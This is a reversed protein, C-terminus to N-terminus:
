LKHKKMEAEEQDDDVEAEVNKDLKQKKLIKSELEEGARKSSGETRTESGKVLETDMDVFTNYKKKEEAQLRAALEYDADMMAQVNEWKAINADEERQRELKEEEELEADLQAATTIPDTTSVGKEAMDVEKEAMDQENDLVGTDFMLNDGYRGQTEDVLTVKADQDIENIKRGQKSADEQDGLGKDEYSFVQASRGITFLRKMGPTKSKKKREIKKVRKKLCAIEKAQATKTTELDLVRQSLSTCLEILENLKLRDESSLLPDNSHTPVSAVNETDGTVLETPGSLQSDETDKRQKRRSQKKSIETIIVKKKDVLAQIQVEGNVIKVKRTAQGYCNSAAIYEAETTSNAVVTQKKCQWSILRCGLFQCGGTTSKRDLSAGVYDSDTYAVLNFPSDKLYWLGLKPQGKLYRFIRKVNHLHLVKPNVQFRACAYVTFMIDLRSSTLYMLSGIMSRYLHEDVDEGDADKLLAKQTEM